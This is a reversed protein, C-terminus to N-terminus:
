ILVVFHLLCVRPFHATIHKAASGRRQAVHVMFYFGDFELTGNIRFTWCLPFHDRPVSSSPILVLTKHSKCPQSQGGGGLPNVTIDAQWLRLLSRLVHSQWEWPMIPSHDGCTRWSSRLLVEIHCHTLYIYMYRYIEWLCTNCINVNVNFRSTQLVNASMNFYSRHSAWTLLRLKPWICGRLRSNQSDTWPTKFPWLASRVGVCAVVSCRWLTPEVGSVAKSSDRELPAECDGCFM